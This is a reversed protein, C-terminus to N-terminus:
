KYMYSWRIICSLNLTSWIMCKDRSICLLDRMLTIMDFWINSCVFCFVVVDSWGYLFSSLDYVFVSYTIYYLCLCVRTRGRVQQHAAARTNIRMLARSGSRLSVAAASLLGAMLAMRWSSWKLIVGISRRMLSLGIHKGHTSYGSCQIVNVSVPGRTSGMSSAQRLHETNLKGTSRVFHLHIFWTKYKIYKQFYLQRSLYM